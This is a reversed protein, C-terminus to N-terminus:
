YMSSAWNIRWQDTVGSLIMGLEYVITEDDGTRTTYRRWIYCDFSNISNDESTKKLEFLGIDIISGRKERPAFFMIRQEVRGFGNSINESMPLGVRFNEFESTDVSVPFKDIM